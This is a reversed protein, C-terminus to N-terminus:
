TPNLELMYSISIHMNTKICKNKQGFFNQVYVQNYSLRKYQLGWIKTKGRAVLIALGDKGRRRCPLMLLLRLQHDAGSDSSPSPPNSQNHQDHQPSNEALCTLQTLVAPKPISNLNM